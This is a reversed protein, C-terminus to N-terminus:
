ALIKSTIQPNAILKAMRQPYKFNLTKILKFILDETLLRDKSLIIETMRNVVKDTKKKDTNNKDEFYREVYNIFRLTLTSAIDSRYNDNEYICDKLKNHVDEWEGSLMQEATILRDLHNHVFTVFLDGVLEGDKGFCGSGILSTMLLSETSSFDKIGNLANAFMTFTRANVGPSKFIEPNLLMFNILEGRIGVKDCWKAYVKEDFDVTFNILRTSQASDLSSVSYEGNDPNSTLLLHCKKPLKWSVYEGFQILSMVAQMFLSTARSYDDLLLIFEQEPDKPVWEPVAYSMRPACHECLGWGMNIYRDVVKETVWKEENNKYMAYEKVPCGCLDGVEELESLNLRKYGAGREQAIQEIVSTKGTGAEGIINIAIKNQGKEILNLNNDLLYNITTKVEELNM